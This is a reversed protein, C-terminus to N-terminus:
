VFEPTWTDEQRPAIERWSTLAQIQSFLEDSAPYFEWWGDVKVVCLEGERALCAYFESTFSPFGILTARAIADSEASKFGVFYSWEHFYLARGVKSLSGPRWLQTSTSDFAPVEVHLEEFTRENEESEYIWDSRVPGMQCDVIWYLSDLHEFM